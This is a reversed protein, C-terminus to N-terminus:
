DDRDGWGHIAFISKTANWRELPKFRLEDNEFVSELCNDGISEDFLVKGFDGRGIFNQDALLFLYEDLTLGCLQHEELYGPLDDFRMGLTIAHAKQVDSMYEFGLPYAYSPRWKAESDNPLVIPINQKERITESMLKRRSPNPPPILLTHSYNLEKRRWTLKTIEEMSQWTLDDVIRQSADFIDYIKQSDKIISCRFDFDHSNEPDIREYYLERLERRRVQWFDSKQRTMLDDVKLFEITLEYKLQKKIQEIKEDYDIKGLEQRAMEYEALKSEIQEFGNAMRIGGLWELM